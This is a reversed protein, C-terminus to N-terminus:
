LKVHANRRNRAYVNVHHLIHVILFLVVLLLILIIINTNDGYCIIKINIIINNKRSKAKTTLTTAYMIGVVRRKSRSWVKYYIRANPVIITLCKSMKVIKNTWDFCTQQETWIECFWLSDVTYNLVIVPFYLVQLPVPLM